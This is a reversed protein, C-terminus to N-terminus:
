LKTSGLFDLVPVVNYYSAKAVIHNINRRLDDSYNGGGEEGHGRVHFTIVM